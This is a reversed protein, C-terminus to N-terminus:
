LKNKLENKFAKGFAELQAQKKVFWLGIRKLFRVKKKKKM